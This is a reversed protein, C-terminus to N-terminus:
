LLFNLLNLYDLLGIITTEKFGAKDVKKLYPGEALLQPNLEAFKLPKIVDQKLNFASM